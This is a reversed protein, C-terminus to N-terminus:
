IRPGGDSNLGWHLFTLLVLKDLNHHLPYIAWALCSPLFGNEPIILKENALSMPGRGNLHDSLADRVKLWPDRNLNDTRTRDLFITLLNM